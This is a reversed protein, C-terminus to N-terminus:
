NFQTGVPLPLVVRDKSCFIAVRENVLRVPQMPSSCRPCNDHLGPVGPHFSSGNLSTLPVNAPASASASVSARTPTSGVQVRAERALREALPQFRRISAKYAAAADAKSSFTLTGDPQAWGADILTGKVAARLSATQPQTLRHERARGEFNASWFDEMSCQSYAM